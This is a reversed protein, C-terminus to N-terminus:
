IKFPHAETSFVWDDLSFFDRPSFTLYLYDFLKGFLFSETGDKPGAEPRDVNRLGHYGASTKCHKELSQFIEWARDQWIPDGTLRWAYWISEVVEPRLIFEGNIIRLEEGPSFSEPGLGTKTSNYSDYCTQAMQLGLDFVTANNRLKGGLMWNGPAFCALHTMFPQIGGSSASYEALYPNKSNPSWQLLHTISSEVAQEWYKVYDIADDGILQWYKVGYELFSDVNAGWGIRDGSPNGNQSILIQPHLGPFVHTNNMIHRSTKDALVRHSSNTWYSLRDFELILSGAEAITITEQPTHQNTDFHMWAYPIPSGGMWAMELKAGIESAKDLLGTRNAGTLEYISLIGGLYRITTEFVSSAQGQVQSRKFDITLTYEIARELRETLGMIYLTSMSDILTAGWGNRTDRFSRSIPIIEDHGWAYTAYSDYAQIFSQKIQEQRTRDLETRGPGRPQIEHNTKFRTKEESMTKWSM